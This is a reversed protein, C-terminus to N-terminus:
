REEGELVPCASLGRRDLNLREPNALKEVATRVVTSVGRGVAASGGRPPPLPSATASRTARPSPESHRAQAAADAGSAGGRAAVMADHSRQRAVGIPGGLSSLGSGLSDTFGFRAGLGANAAPGGETAAPLAGDYRKRVPPPTRGVSAPSTTQIDAGCTAPGAARRDLSIRSLMTLGADSHSGGTSNFSGGRMANKQGVFNGKPSVAKKNFIARAAVATEM